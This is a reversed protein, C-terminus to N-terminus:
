KGEAGAVTLQPRLKNQKPQPPAAAQVVAQHEQQEGEAEFRM